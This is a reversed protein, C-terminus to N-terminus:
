NLMTSVNGLKYAELVENINVGKPNKANGKIHVFTSDIRDEIGRSFITFAERIPDVVILWASSTGEFLQERDHFNDLKIGVAQQIKNATDKSIFLMASIANPSARGSIIAAWINKSRSSKLNMLIGTKDSYLGKRYEEIIDQNLLWDKCFSIEGSRMAHWRASWSLDRSNHRCITVIDDSNLSKPRLTVTTQLTTTKNGYSLPINLIKGVVLNSEDTINHITKDVDISQKADGGSMGHHEDGLEPLNYDRPYVSELGLSVNNITDNLHKSLEDSTPLSVYDSTVHDRLNEFAWYVSNGAALSLSRNTAFQGLIQIPVIDGVKMTISLATLYLGSYVSLMTQELAVMHDASISSLLSKDVLAIPELRTPRTYENLTNSTVNHAAMSFIAAAELPSHLFDM